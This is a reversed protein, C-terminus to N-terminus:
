PRGEKGEPRGEKGEQQGFAIKLYKALINYDGDLLPTLIVTKISAVPRLPRVEAYRNLLLVALEGILPLLLFLGMREIKAQKIKEEKSLKNGGYYTDGLQLRTPRCDRHGCNNVTLFKEGTQL